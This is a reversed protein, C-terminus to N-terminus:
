ELRFAPGLVQLIEDLTLHRGADCSRYWDRCLLRRVGPQQEARLWFLTEYFNDETCGWPTAFGFGFAPIAANEDSVIRRDRRQVFLRDAALRQPEESVTSIELECHPRYRDVSGVQRGDQFVARARGAPITLDQLLVWQLDGVSGADQPPAACGVLGLLLCVGLGSRWAGRQRAPRDTKIKVSGPPLAV